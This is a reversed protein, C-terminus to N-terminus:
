GRSSGAIVPPGRAGAARHRRHGRHAQPQPRHRRPRHARRAHGARRRDSRRPGGGPSAAARSRRRAGRHPPRSRGATARRRRHRGLARAVRRPRPPTRRARPRPRHAPPRPSAEAGTPVAVATRGAAGGPHPDRHPDRAPRPPRARHAGARQRRRGGRTSRRHGPARHGGAGSPSRAAAGGAPGARAAGPRLLRVPDPRAGRGPRPRPGPRVRRVRRGRGRHPAPRPQARGAPPRLRHSVARRAPARAARREGRPRAARRRAPRRPRGVGTRSGGPTRARVTAASPDDPLWLRGRARVEPAMVFRPLADYLASTVEVDVLAGPPPPVMGAIAADSARRVDAVLQAYALDPQPRSWTRDPTLGPHDVVAVTPWDCPDHSPDFPFGGRHTRLGRRDAASPDLVAIVGRAGGDSPRTLAVVALAGGREDATLDLGAVTARARNARAREDLALEGTADVFRVGGIEGGTPLEAPALRLAIRTADLPQTTSAPETYWVDGHHEAHAVLAPWSMWAGATTEFLPLDGARSAPLLGDCVARRLGRRLWVPTDAPSLTAVVLNVLKGALAQTRRALTQRADRTLGTPARLIAVLDPAEIALMVPPQVDLDLEAVPEGDTHLALGSSRRDVLAIEGPGFGADGGLEAFRRTYAPVAGRVTPTPLLGRAMRRQAQRTHVTGTVDIVPARALGGIVARLKDGAEGDPVYLIPRDLDDARDDDDGALWDGRWSAVVIRGGRTADLVSSRGGQVTAFAPAAILDDRDPVGVLVGDLWRALLRRTPAHDAIATPTTRAIARVLAPAARQVEDLLRAATDPHVGAVDDDVHAAILDVVATLPLGDPDALETFRRGEIRVDVTTHSHGITVLGRGLGGDLTVSVPAGALELPEVRRARLAALRAARAAANRRTEAEEAAQRCARGTLRSVVGALREDAVLPRWDDGTAATGPAVWPLDGRADTILADISRPRDDGLVTLLPRARLAAVLADGLLAAPAAEAEALARILARGARGHLGPAATTGDPAAIEVLEPVLEGLVRRALARILAREWEALDRSVLGAADLVGTWDVTPVMADSDIAITCSVRSPMSPRRALEVGVHHLIRWPEGLAIAGAVDTERVALAVGADAEAALRRALTAARDVVPRLAAASYGVLPAPALLAELLARDDGAALVVVRGDPSRGSTGPAAVGVVHQTRLRILDVWDGDLTPWAAAGALPTDRRAPIDLTRALHLGRRVLAADQARPLREGLTVGDPAAEGGMARALAEAARVASARAANRAELLALDDVVGRYRADPTVEASSVVAQVGPADALPVTALRRGDLLVVLEGPEDDAVLAVEGTLGAFVVDDICSPASGAGLRIRVRVPSRPTIEAAVPAHAYFRQRAALQDRADRARRRAAKGDLVGRAFLLAAPDGRPVWPVADLWPALEGPFPEDGTHVVDDWPELVPRAEGVANRLLPLAALRRYPATLAGITLPLGPRAGEAALLALAAARPAAATPDADLLAILRDIADGVVARARAEAAAIPHDDRRVQSRSVNTPMRPGDVFLRLPVPVAPEARLVAADRGVHVWRERVLRVGHEAIEVLADGGAAGPAAAEVVAVFGDLGAGLPVRLLDRRHVERGVAVGDVTMAVAVDACADRAIALEPPDGGRLLYGLTELGARRRLHVLMGPAPAGRPPIISEAALARLADADGAAVTAPTYRARAADGAATVAIVDVWAPDCGLATNVAAGLLRLHQGRRAEPSVLEDLLRPLDDAAWPEGEWALWVDNSDGRLEIRRAGAAVAARVAELVWGHRDALQYERLKAIARAADVRLRGAGLRAGPGAKRVSM